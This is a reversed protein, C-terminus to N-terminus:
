FNEPAFYKPGSKLGGGGKFFDQTRGQVCQNYGEM